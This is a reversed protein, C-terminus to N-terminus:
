ASQRSKILLLTPWFRIYVGYLVTYLCCLSGHISVTYLCQVYFRVCVISVTYKTIELGWIGCTCWKYIIKGVRSILDLCLAQIDM